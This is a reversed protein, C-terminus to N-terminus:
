FSLVSLPSWKLIIGRFIIVILALPIWLNVFPLRIGESELATSDKGVLINLIFRWFKSNRKKLFVALLELFLLALFCLGLYFLNAPWNTILIGLAALWKEEDYFYLGDILRIAWYALLAFILSFLLRSFCYYYIYTFYYRIPTFPPLLRQTIDKLHWLTWNAWSLFIAELLFLFTLGWFIAKLTKVEPWKRKVLFYCILGITLALGVIPSFYYYLFNSIQSLM